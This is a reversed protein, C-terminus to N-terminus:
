PGRLSEGRHNEQNEQEAMNWAQMRYKHQAPCKTTSSPAQCLRSTVRRAPSSGCHSLNFHDLAPCWSRIISLMLQRFIRIDLKAGRNLEPHFPVGVAFTDDM